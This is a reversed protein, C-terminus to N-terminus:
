EVQHGAKFHDFVHVVGHLAIGDTVNRMQELRLAFEDDGCRVGPEGSRVSMVRVMQSFHGLWLERFQQLFAELM